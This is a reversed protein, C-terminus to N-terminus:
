IGCFLLVGLCVLFIECGCLVCPWYDGLHRVCLIGWHLKQCGKSSGSAMFVGWGRGLCVSRCLCSGVMGLKYCCVRVFGLFLQCSFCYCNCVRSVYPLVTLKDSWLVPYICLLLVETSWHICLSYLVFLHFPLCNGVRLSHYINFLVHM